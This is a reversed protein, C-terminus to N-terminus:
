ARLDAAYDVAFDAFTRPPRGLLGAIGPVIEGAWGARVVVDYLTTLDRAYRGEYGAAVCREYFQEADGDVYHVARGTVDSLVKAAGGLTLAEAGTWTLDAGPQPAGAALRALGAAVDRADIMAMAGDGFPLSWVGDATIWPVYQILNQMLFGPRVITAPLGSARLLLEAKYHDRALALPAEPGAGGVSVKILQTVGRRAAADIVHTEQRLQSASNAAILVVRDAGAVAGDVAQADGLDVTVIEATTDELAAARSRDRVAARVAHGAGALERVLHQGITGTAGTVLVTM